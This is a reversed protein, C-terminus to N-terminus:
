RYPSFILACLLLAVCSFLGFTPTTLSFACAYPRPCEGRKVKPITDHAPPRSEVVTHINDKDLKRPRRGQGKRRMMKADWVFQMRRDALYM